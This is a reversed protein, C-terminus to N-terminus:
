RNGVAPRAGKRPPETRVDPLMPVADVKTLLVLLFKHDQMGAAPVLEIRAFQDGDGREVKAVTAVRLGAPYVGDIGSTVAQDGVKVDASVPMFRLELTGASAGGYIVGRLSNREIQVPISQDRDTLLTVEATSPFSRTVQGIVGREDIVPQGPQVGDGSGKDLVVKRVFRDRPEYMIQSLVSPLRATERAGLLRRLQANEAELQRVRQLDGAMEISERRLNENDRTLRDQTSVYEGVSSAAQTPLLLARQVPLLVVGVGVRITDLARIRSDVVILAIALLAFIALRGRASVGQNFLPPPSPEM